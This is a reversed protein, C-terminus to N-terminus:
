APESRTADLAPVGRNYWGPRSRSRISRTRSTAGAVSLQTDPPIMLSDRVVNNISVQAITDSAWSARHAASASMKGTM